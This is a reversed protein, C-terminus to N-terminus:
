ILANHEERRPGYLWLWLAMLSGPISDRAGRREAAPGPRGGDATCGAAACRNDTAHGLAVKERWGTRLAGPAPIVDRCGGARRGPRWRLTPGGPQGGQEAAVPQDAQQQQGPQHEPYEGLDGVLGREDVHVRELVEVAGRRTGVRHPVHDDQAADQGHPVEADHGGDLM